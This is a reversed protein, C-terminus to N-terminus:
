FTILCYHHMAIGSCLYGRVWAREPYSALVCFQPIACSIYLKWKGPVRNNLLLVVRVCTILKTKTVSRVHDNYVVGHHSFM